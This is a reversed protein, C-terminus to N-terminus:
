GGSDMARISTEEKIAKVLKYATVYYHFAVCKVLLRRMAEIDHKKIALSADAVIQVRPVRKAQWNSKM